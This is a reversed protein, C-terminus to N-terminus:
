VVSNYVRVNKPPVAFVLLSLGFLSVVLCYMGEFHVLVHALLLM